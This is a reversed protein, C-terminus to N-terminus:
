VAVSKVQALRYAGSSRGQCGFIEPEGVKKRQGAKKLLPLRGGYAPPPPRSARGLPDFNRGYRRLRTPLVPPRLGRM